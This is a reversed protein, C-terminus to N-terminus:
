SNVCMPLGCSFYLLVLLRLMNDIHFGVYQDVVSRFLIGSKSSKATIFPSFVFLNFIVGQLPTYPTINDDTITITTPQLHRQQPM